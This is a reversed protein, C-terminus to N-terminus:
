RKGIRHGGTTEKLFMAQEVGLIILTAQHFLPRRLRYRDLIRETVQAVAVEARAIVHQQDGDVVQVVRPKFLRHRRQRCKGFFVDVKGLM